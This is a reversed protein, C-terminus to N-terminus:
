WFYAIIFVVFPFVGVFSLFYFNHKSSDIKYIMGAGLATDAFVGVAGNFEDGVGGRNDVDGGRTPEVTEAGVGLGGSLLDAPEQTLVSGLDAVLGSLLHKSVAHDAVDVRALDLGDDSGRGQGRKKLPPKSRNTHSRCM